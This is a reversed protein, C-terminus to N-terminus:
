VLSGTKRKTSLDDFLLRLLKLNLTQRVDLVQKEGVTM